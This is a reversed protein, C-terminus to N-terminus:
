ALDIDVLDIEDISDTGLGRAASTAIHTPTRGVDSLPQLGLAERGEDVLRWAVADHAVPDTAATVLYPYWAFNAQFNPGGDAQGRTGDCIVLRQKNRLAPVCNLDAIYPDCGAAHHDRPNSITGYHNKLAGTTGSIRHDKLIPLNLVADVRKTVIATLPGNFSGQETADDWESYAPLVQAGWATKEDLGCSVLGSPDRDWIVIAEPKVGIAHLREVCVKILLLSTSMIPGGLGNVKIGVSEDSSFRQGWASEPTGQGTLEMLARDVMTSLVEEQIEHEVIVGENRAVVVKTEEPSPTTPVDAAAHQGEQARTCGPLLAAGAASAAATALFRRRTTTSARTM